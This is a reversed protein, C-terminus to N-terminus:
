LAVMTKPYERLQLNAPFKSVDKEIRGNIPIQKVFVSVGWGRCQDVIDEAAELWQAESTISGDASLRKVRPGDSEVGIIMWAGDGTDTNECLWPPAKLGWELYPRFDIKSLLPEASVGIVPAIDQCKLIHPMLAELSPQDSISTLLAVNPRRMLQTPRDFKIGDEVVCTKPIGPTMPWMPLINEPRKTLLLWWLWPTDDILAFFDKRIGDLRIFRDGYVASHSGEPHKLVQGFHDHVYGAWKEFPDCFSPFVSEKRCAAQANRNWKVVTNWSKLAAAVRKGKEGWEGLTQPNRGSMREAYCNLCGEHPTGDPLIRHTCGRWPSWSHDTWEIGTKFGM